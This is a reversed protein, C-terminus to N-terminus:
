ALELYRAAIRSWDYEHATERNLAGCERSLKEDSLFQSLARAMTEVDGIPVLAGNRGTAIVDHSGSVDTSIIPLGAAMAEIVVLPFMEEKSSMFLMQSQQWAAMLPEGYLGNHLVVRGTLGLEDVLPQLTTSNNGLIVYRARPFDGAIRAFAQIGTSYAKSPHHRGVSLIIQAEPSLGLSARFDVGAPKQFKDWEVGNPIRAIKEPRAGVSLMLEEAKRSIAIAAVSSNLGQCLERDIGHLQRYGRQFTTIDDGHSTVVYRPVPRMCSLWYGVPYAMHASIVDPGFRKLERKLTHLAYQRFPFHQYGFRESGRLRGFYGVTYAGNAHTAERSESNLVRVEHGQRSWACALHHMVFEMGGVKPLFTVGVIAINM